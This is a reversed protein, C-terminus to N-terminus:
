SILSYNLKFDSCLLYNCVTESTWVETMVTSDFFLWDILCFLSNLFFLDVKPTHAAISRDNECSWYHFHARYLATVAFWFVHPLVSTHRQGTLRETVPSSLMIWPSAANHSHPQLVRFSLHHWMDKQWWPQWDLLQFDPRVWSVGIWCSLKGNSTKLM